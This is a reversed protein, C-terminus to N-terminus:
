ESACARNLSANSPKLTPSYPIQETQPTRSLPFLRVLLGVVVLVLVPVLVVVLLLPPAPIPLQVSGLTNTWPQNARPRPHASHPRPVCTAVRGRTVTASARSHDARTGAPQVKTPSLSLAGCSSCMHQGGSEETPLVPSRPTRSKIQEDEQFRSSSCM